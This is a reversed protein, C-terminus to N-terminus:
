SRSNDKSTVINGRRANILCKSITKSQWDNSRKTSLYDVAWSFYIRVIRSLYIGWHQSMWCYVDKDRMDYTKRNDEEYTMPSETPYPKMTLPSPGTNTLATSGPPGAAAAPRFTPWTTVATLPILTCFLFWLSTACTIRPCCCIKRKSTNALQLNFLCYLGIIYM